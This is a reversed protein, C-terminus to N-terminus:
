GACYNPALALVAAIAATVSGADGNINVFYGPTALNRLRLYANDQANMGVCIVLGNVDKFQEAILMLDNDDATGAEPEIVGDSIILIAPQTLTIAQEAMTSLAKIFASMLDTREEPINSMGLAALATTLDTKTHTLPWVEKPAGDFAVLGLYDKTQLSNILSIAVHRAALFASPFDPGFTVDMSPSADLVIVTGVIRTTCCGAGTFMWITAYATQGNRVASIVVQGDSVRTVLGTGNVTAKTTDSSFWTIADSVTTDQFGDNTYAVLQQPSNSCVVALGPSIFFTEGPASQACLRDNIRPFHSSTPTM